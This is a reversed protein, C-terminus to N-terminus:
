LVSYFFSLSHLCFFNKKKKIEMRQMKANVNFGLECSSQL